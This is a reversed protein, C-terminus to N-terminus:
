NFLFQQVDPNTIAILIRERMMAPDSYPPMKIIHHCTQASPMTDDIVRDAEIKRLITLKPRLALLGGVPQRPSGTIWTLFKRKDQESLEELVRIFDLYTQSQADYGHQPTIAACLDNYKWDLRQEGGLKVALENPSFVRLQRMPFVQNFGASFAELQKSIGDKLILGAVRQLYLEVNAVGVDASERDMAEGDLERKVREPVGGSCRPEDQDYSMTLYLEEVACNHPAAIKLTAVEAAIEKQSLDTRAELARKRCVFDYLPILVKAKAIDVDVMDGISLQGGVM